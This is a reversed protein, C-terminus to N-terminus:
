KVTRAENKTEKFTQSDYNTLRYCVTGTFNSDEGTRANKSIPNLQIM